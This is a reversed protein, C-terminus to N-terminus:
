QSTFIKDHFKWFQGQENACESAIAFPTAMPHIQTLPFHRFYLKAKGSDIYEKKIQQYSSDFFRKCFPCEFDSFEVITIKANQDGLVPLRGGDVTKRVTSSPTQGNLEKDIVDKFAEFPQAGVLEIGNVYFTPTGNVGATAGDKQDGDVQAKFKEGDFCSNFKGTDLGAEKAWRKVDDKTKAQPAAQNGQQSPAQAAQNNSGSGAGKELLQVRAILYGVLFVAVLLLIYVLQSTKIQSIKSTLDGLTQAKKTKKATAM